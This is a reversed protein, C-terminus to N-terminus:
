QQQVTINHWAYKINGTNKKDRWMKEAFECQM